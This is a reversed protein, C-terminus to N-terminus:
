TMFTNHALRHFYGLHVLVTLNITFQICIVFYEFSMLTYFDSPMKKEGEIKYM